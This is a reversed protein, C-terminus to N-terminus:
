FALPFNREYRSTSLISSALNERAFSVFSGSSSLYHSSVRAMWKKWRTKRSKGWGSPSRRSPCLFALFILLFAIMKLLFKHKKRAKNDNSVKINDIFEWKRNNPCKEMSSVLCPQGPFPAFVRLIKQSEGQFEQAEINLHVQSLIIKFQIVNSWAGEVGVQVWGGEVHCDVFHFSFSHCLERTAKTSSRFKNKILKIIEKM